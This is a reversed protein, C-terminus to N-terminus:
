ISPELCTEKKKDHEKKLNRIFVLESQFDVYHPLKLHQVFGSSEVNDSHSLIFEQDQAPYKTKSDSNSSNQLSKDLLAMSMAKRESQGFVLGYGNEFGPPKNESGDFRNIMFCETLKIKGIIIEFGLEPPTYKVAIYGVRLEGLFPHRDLGFGRQLSYASGLLFGEDGRALNQLRISRSAPLKLPERTLDEVNKHPTTPSATDMLGQQRLIDIVRTMQQPSIDQETSDVTPVQNKLPTEKKEDSDFDILRHTYDYTPGLVQGGPIDKYIGSIRRIIQMDQTDIPASTGFRKLTTRFARVLFIAEMTDGQAQKLATAAAKNDYLSGEAMVRDVGLGMQHEIQNTRIPPVTEPGRRMKAVLRRSQKVAKEGGKVAVYM